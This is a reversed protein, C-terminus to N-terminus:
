PAVYRSTLPSPQTREIWQATVIPAPKPGTGIAAALQQESM